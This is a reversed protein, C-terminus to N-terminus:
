PTIGFFYKVLFILFALLLIVGAIGWGVSAKDPHHNAKWTEKKWDNRSFPNMLYIGDEKYVM